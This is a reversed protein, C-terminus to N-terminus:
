NSQQAGQKRCFSMLTTGFPVGVAGLTRHEIRSIRYLLQNIWAPPVSEIASPRHLLKESLRLALKVPWIWQFWYREELISFGAQRLLPDLTKRRYRTHHHNIADHHTWLSQFAPVTVLLAGGPELLSYAHRLAEVPNEIHELVDLMLVLSYSKSPRFNQDFPAIRIRARYRSQPAVLREDPEVGEVQGFEALRDFFLGDGCGVDLIQLGANPPFQRHLVELIAEERSRWWWHRMYLDRYQRAYDAEM